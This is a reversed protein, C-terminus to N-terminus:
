KVEYITEDGPLRYYSMNVTLPAEWLEADNGDFLSEITDLWNQEDESSLREYKQYCGNEFQSPDQEFRDVLSLATYSEDPEFLFANLDANLYDSSLVRLSGREVVEGAANFTESSSEKLHYTDADFVFRVVTNSPEFDKLALPDNSSVQLYNQTNIEIIHVMEHEDEELAYFISPDDQVETLLEIMESTSLSGNAAKDLKILFNDLPLTNPRSTATMDLFSPDESDIRAIAYGTFHAGEQTNLCMIQDLFKEQLEELGHQKGPHVNYVPVDVLEGAENEQVETGIQEVQAYTVLNAYEDWISMSTDNSYITEFNGYEDPGNFSTFNLTERIEGTPSIWIEKNMSSTTQWGTFGDTEFYSSSESATIVHYIEDGHEENAASAEQIFLQLTNESDGPLAVQTLILAVITLSLSLRFLTKMFSNSSPVKNLNTEMRSILKEKLGAKFSQDQPVQANQIIHNLNKKM